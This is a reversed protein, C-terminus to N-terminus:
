SRVRFRVLAAAARYGDRWTIKKGEEYTRGYYSIPVEYLRVGGHRLVKATLEPEIRFDDSILSLSRVLDGRFAKYGVEMDSITTNYLVNTLLSLLRNGAYHWFMHARQPQGGRLRTGFVADAHGDIIPEILRPIDKPDYELDADQIIVVDGTAAALGTRVAAGKGRNTGHRLLRVGDLGNASAHAVVAATADRSGDDVVLTETRLPLAEVRRLVEEITAEEDCAPVIVTLLPSAAPATAAALASETDSTVPEM